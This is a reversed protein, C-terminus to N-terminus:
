LVKKGEWDDNEMLIELEEEDIENEEEDILKEQDDKFVYKSM